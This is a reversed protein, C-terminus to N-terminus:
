KMLDNALVVMTKLMQEYAADSFKGPPSCEYSFVGDFGIEKLASAFENWDLVGFMPIRHLDQKGDNDHVHLTRLKSGYTRVADGISAGEFVAVHGTDLCACFHDSNIENIVQMQQAPTGLTFRPMPMNEYCIYVDYQEATKTLEKMFVMNKRLTEPSDPTDIEHIGFPMVPHIIWNKCGIVSSLRISRKMREMREALGEDTTENPPWRWPGHIQNIEIGAEDALQKEALMIEDAESDSLTYVPTETNALNLDICDIGCAKLRKYNDKGFRTHQHFNMNIGIKM